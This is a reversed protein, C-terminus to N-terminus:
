LKSSPKAETMVARLSALIISAASNRLLNDELSVKVKSLRNLIDRVISLDAGGQKCRQAYEIVDTLAMQRANKSMIERLDEQLKTAVPNEARFLDLAALLMMISKTAVGMREGVAAQMQLYKMALQHCFNFTQTSVVRADSPRLGARLESVSDTLEQLRRDTPELTGQMLQELTETTRQLVPQLRLSSQSTKVIEAAIPQWQENSSCLNQLMSEVSAPGRANLINLFDPSQIAPVGTPMDLALACAMFRMVSQVRSLAQEVAPWATIMNESDRGRLNGCVQKCRAVEVLYSKAIKAWHAEFTKPSTFMRQFGPQTLLAVMHM